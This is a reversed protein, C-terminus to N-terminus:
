RFDKLNKQVFLLTLEVLNEGSDYFRDDLEAIEDAHESEIQDFLDVREDEDTPVQRDEFMDLLRDLLISTEKAKIRELSELTEEARAGAEHHIFQVFGGNEMESLLQDICYVTKEAETLSDYGMESEKDYIVDTIQLFSDTEDAVDLAAQIEMNM